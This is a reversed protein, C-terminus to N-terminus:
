PEPPCTNAEVGEDLADSGELLWRNDIQRLRDVQRQSGHTNNVLTAPNDPGVPRSDDVPPGYLIATSWWCTVVEATTGDAGVTITEVVYYGPDEEGVYRGRDFLAQMTSNMANASESDPVLWSLDCNLPARLCAWYGDYFVQFAAAIQEEVTLPAVTTSTTSTTTATTTSASTASPETPDTEVPDSTSPTRTSVSVQSTSADTRDDDSCASLAVVLVVAALTPKHM